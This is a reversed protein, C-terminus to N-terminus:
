DLKCGIDYQGGPAREVCDGTGWRGGKGGRGVQLEAKDLVEVEIKANIDKKEHASFEVTVKVDNRAPLEGSTPYVVLEKPLKELGTLRWKIPLLGPNSIIFSRLDKKNVLLRGFAIGETLIRNPPPPQPKEGPVPVPPLPPPPSGDDLYVQQVYFLVFLRNTLTATEQNCGIHWTHM